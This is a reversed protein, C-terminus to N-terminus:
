SASVLLLTKKTKWVTSVSSKKTKPSTLHHDKKARTVKITAIFKTAPATSSFSATLLIQEMVLHSCEESPSVLKLISRKLTKENSTKKKSSLHVCKTQIRAASRHFLAMIVLEKSSSLNLGSTKQGFGSWRKQRFSLTSLTRPSRREGFSCNEWAKWNTDLWKVWLITWWAM